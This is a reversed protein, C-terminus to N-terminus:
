YGTVPLTAFDNGTFLLALAAIAGTSTGTITGNFDFTIIDANPFVQELFSAIQGRAPLNIVRTALIAGGQNRLALSVTVPAETTNAIAIGSLVQKFPDRQV